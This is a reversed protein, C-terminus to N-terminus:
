PIRMQMVAVESRVPDIQDAVTWKQDAGNRGMIESIKPGTRAPLELGSACFTLAQARLLRRVGVAGNSGHLLRHALQRALQFRHRGHRCGVAIGVALRLRPGCFLAKRTAKRQPLLPTAFTYHWGHVGGSAVPKVSLLVM